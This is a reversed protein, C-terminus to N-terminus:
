CFHLVRVVGTNDGPLIYSKISGTSGKTSKLTPMSHDPLGVASKQKATDSLAARMLLLKSDDSDSARNVGNTKDTADCNNAWSHYILKHPGPMHTHSPISLSPHGM